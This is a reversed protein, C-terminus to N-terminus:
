VLSFKIQGSCRLNPLSPQQIYGLLSVLITYAQAKDIFILGVRLLECFSRILIPQLGPVCLKNLISYQQVNWLYYKINLKCKSEQQTSNNNYINPFLHGAGFVGVMMILVFGCDKQKMINMEKFMLTFGNCTFSM